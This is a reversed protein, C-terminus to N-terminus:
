DEHALLGPIPRIVIREGPVVTVFAKVFPVSVERGDADILLNVAGPHEEFGTVTGLKEGRPLFCPLGLLDHYYHFDPGHPWAESAPVALDAGRWADAEEFTAMGQLRVLLLGKHPRVSVVPFERTRDGLVLWVTKLAAYREPFDSLPRARLDGHVGHPRLVEGIAIFGPNSL